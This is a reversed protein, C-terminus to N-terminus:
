IFSAFSACPTHLYKLVTRLETSVYATHESSIGGAALEVGLSHASIKGTPVDVDQEDLLYFLEQFHM